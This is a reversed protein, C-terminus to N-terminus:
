EVKTPVKGCDSASRRGDCDGRTQKTELVRNKPMCSSKSPIKLFRDVSSARMTDIETSGAAAGDHHRTTGENVEQDLAAIFCRRFRRWQKGHSNHQSVSSARENKTLTYPASSRLPIGPCTASANM